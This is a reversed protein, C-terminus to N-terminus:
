SEDDSVYLEKLTEKVSVTKRVINTSTNDTSVPYAAEPLPVDKALFGDRSFLDVFKDKDISIVPTVKSPGKLSTDKPDDNHESTWPKEPIITSEKHLLGPQSNLVTPKHDLSISPRPDIDGIFEKSDFMTAILDKNLALREDQKVEKKPVPKANELVAINGFPNFESALSYVPLNSNNNQVSTNLGPQQGRFLNSANGLNTGIGSITSQSNFANQAPAIKQGFNTLGTNQGFISTGTSQGLVGTGPTQGLTSTGTKQGFLGTGTNQGLVSTGTNQGLINAGTKQGFGSATTNQGFNFGSSTSTQGLNTAGNNQGFNLGPTSTQGLTNTGLNQGFGTTGAGKGLLTTATNQGFSNNIGTNQGLASAGTNQGFLGTGASQGLVSTGTKQGFGNTATNQGFGSTATNQGFGGAASSQGFGSTATNQGFGTTGTKQGFGSTVTNQGFGGATNSQGFGGVGTNQGFNFGSSSTQGINKAATNQGFNFGTSTQGLGGTGANQGFTSSTGITQGFGSTGTNQGFNFGSGASTQTLGVSQSRNFGTGTATGTSTIAKNNIQDGRFIYGNKYDVMRLEDVSYGKFEPMLEISFYKLAKEKEESPIIDISYDYLKTGNNPYTINKNKLESFVRGNIYDQMRLEDESFKLYREQFIISSFYMTSAISLDNVKFERSSTSKHGEMETGYGNGYWDGTLNPCKAYQVQNQNQNQGQGLPNASGLNNFGSPTGSFGVSTSGFRNNNTFM